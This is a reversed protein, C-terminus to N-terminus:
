VGESVVHDPLLQGFPAAVFLSPPLEEVVGVGPGNVQIDVGRPIERLLDTERGLQPVQPLVDPREGSGLHSPDDDGTLAFSRFLTTYPFLPSRAPRRAR